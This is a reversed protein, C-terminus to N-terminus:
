RKWEVRLLHHIDDIRQAQEMHHTIHRLGYREDLDRLHPEKLGLLDNDWGGWADLYRDVLHHHRKRTEEAVEDVLNTEEPSLHGNDLQGDFFEHLTAHYFRYRSKENEGTAIALFARWDTNLLRNLRREAIDVGTWEILRRASVAEQTAALMSLLPLHMEDWAQEDVDRWRKCFQVYYQTMGIPLADLDLPFREGRRIEEVLFYLYIWVGDCKTMLTNVFDDQTYNQKGEQLAKSIEPWRTVDGLFRRMDAQNEEQEATLSWYVRATASDNISLKAKSPRQSVIFYVDKPLGAPLGMVNQNGLAGSEDLGDVVVVIKDGGECEQTASKLNKLKEAIRRPKKRNEWVSKLIKQNEAANKLITYLYDPRSAADPLVGESKLNYAETLQAALNRLGASIGEVGPTLECFHHIYNREQVLWALFATKGLGANAELVFYGRDNNNLFEDVEALLWERGTFQLRGTRDFVQQPDIYADQLRKYEGVFVQNDNGTISFIQNNNGSISIQRIDDGQVSISRAQEPHGDFQLAITDDGNSSDAKVIDTDHEVGYGSAILLKQQDIKLIDAIRIVVEPSDPRTHHNRWKNVTSQHLKLQKALQSGSMNLLILGNEILESFQPFYNSM